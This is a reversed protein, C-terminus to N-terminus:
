LLECVQITRGNPSSEGFGLWSELTRSFLSTRIQKVWVYSLTFRHQYWWFWGRHIGPTHGTYATHVAEGPLGGVGPALSQDWQGAARGWWHIKDMVVKANSFLSWSTIFYIPTDSFTPNINGIIAMKRLTVRQYNLTAISFTWWTSHSFGSNWHDNEM